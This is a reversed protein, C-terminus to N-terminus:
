ARPHGLGPSVPLESGIMDRLRAGLTGRLGSSAGYATDLVQMAAENNAIEKAVALVLRADTVLDHEAEYQEVREQSVIEVKKASGAKGMARYIWEDAESDQEGTAEAVSRIAEAVDAFHGSKSRVTTVAGVKEDVLLFAQVKVGAEETDDVAVVEMRQIADDLADMNTGRMVIRSARPLVDDRVIGARRRMDLLDVLADAACDVLVEQMDARLADNEVGEVTVTVDQSWESAHLRSPQRRDIEIEIVAKM